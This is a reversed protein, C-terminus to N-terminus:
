ETCAQYGILDWDYGVINGKRYVNVKTYVDNYVLYWVDDYMDLAELSPLESTFYLVAYQQMPLRDRFGRPGVCEELQKDGGLRILEIGWQLGDDIYMDLCAREDFERGIDIKM